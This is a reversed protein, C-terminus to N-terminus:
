RAPPWWLWINELCNWRGFTQKRRCFAENICDLSLLGYNRSLLSMSFDSQNQSKGVISIAAAYYTTDTWEYHPPSKIDMLPRECVVNVLRPLYTISSIDASHWNQRYLLLPIEDCIDVRPLYTILFQQFRTLTTLSHGRTTSTTHVVRHFNSTTMQQLLFPTIIEACSFFHSLVMNSFHNEDSTAMWKEIEVVKSSPPWWM